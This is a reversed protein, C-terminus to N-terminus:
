LPTELLVEPLSASRTDSIPHCDHSHYTHVLSLKVTDSNNRQASHLTRCHFFVADGPALMPCQARTLWRQNEQIDDRFFLQDDFQHLKFIATHSGPIFWLGGNGATEYGMALWVSVLNSNSFSWYRIDQHWGTATGFNPHKTMICNHHVLSLVPPSGFYTALWSSVDINTSLAQFEPGRDYAHLLRRATRGGIDAQSAPAGAYKLDAELEIPGVNDRLQAAALGRVIALRDPKVFNSIIVFGDRKFLRQLEDSSSSMIM